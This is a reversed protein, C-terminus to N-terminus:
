YSLGNPQAQFSAIVKFACWAALADTAFTASDYLTRNDNYMPPVEVIEICGLTTTTSDVEFEATTSNYVLDCKLGVLSQNVRAVGAKHRQIFVNDSTALAMRLLSRVAGAVAGSPFMRDAYNNLAFHAVFAPNVGSPAAPTSSIGNADTTIDDAAFGYIGGGTTITTRRLATGAPSSNRGILDGALVAMSNGAMLYDDQPAGLSFDAKYVRIAM